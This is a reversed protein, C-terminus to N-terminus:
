KATYMRLEMNDMLPGIGKALSEYDSPLNLSKPINITVDEKNTHFVISIKGKLLTSYGRLVLMSREEPRNAPNARVSGAGPDGILVEPEQFSTLMAQAIYLIKSWTMPFSCKWEMQIWAQNQKITQLVM